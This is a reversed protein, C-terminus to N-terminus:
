SQKKLGKVRYVYALVEAVAHYLEEPVSEGIEVQHYLTRALWKNEVTAIQHEKALEKIKLAIYDMGKALVMPAEMEEPKYSIAIAFHTPNTIIVDAEPVAQMMRSMAMQRQKEKIKGKILPDGETKKYEDKIDQKSMRINKEYEYKKYLYDFLSLVILLLSTKLGLEILLNGIFVIIETLDYYYLSLLNDKEDLLVSYAIYGVFIIKLISKTMEVLSKLSFIRKAGEIPNLREFKIKLPESTFLFGIQVLNGLLGGIFAVIFIPLIIWVLDAIFELFLIRINSPTVEWILYQDFVKYYLNIINKALYPGLLFFMIFILLFIIASPLENTKAVQGKKRSEQRKRPTAKETKEGAFYQLNMRLVAM